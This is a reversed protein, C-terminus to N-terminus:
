ENKTFLYNETKKIQNINILTDMNFSFLINESSDHLTIIPM